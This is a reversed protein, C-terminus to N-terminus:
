KGNPNGWKTKTQIIVSKPHWYRSASIELEEGTKLTGLLTEEPVQSMKLNDTQLSKIEIEQGCNSKIKITGM